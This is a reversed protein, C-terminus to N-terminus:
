HLLNTAALTTINVFPIKWEYAGDKGNGKRRYQIQVMQIIALVDSTALVIMAAM